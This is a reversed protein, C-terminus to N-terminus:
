VEPAHIGVYYFFISLLVRWVRSILFNENNESCVEYIYELDIEELHHSIYLSSICRVVRPTNYICRCFDRHVCFPISLMLLSPECLIHWRRSM